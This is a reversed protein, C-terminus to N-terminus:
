TARANANQIEIVAIIPSRWRTAGCCRWARTPMLPRMSLMEESVAPVSSALASAAANGSRSSYTAKPTTVSHTAAHATGASTRAAPAAPRGAGTVTPSQCALERGDADPPDDGGSRVHGDRRRRRAGRRRTAADVDLGDRRAHLRHRR